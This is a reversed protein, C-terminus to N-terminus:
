ILLSTTLTIPWLRTRKTGGVQIGLHSATPGETGPLCYPPSSTSHTSLGHWPRMLATQAFSFSADFSLLM